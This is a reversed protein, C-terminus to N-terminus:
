CPSGGSSPLAGPSSRPAPAHPRGTLAGERLLLALLDILDFAPAADADPGAVPTAAAQLAQLHADGLTAGAALATCFAAAPPALPWLLVDDDRRLLLAAEPQDIALGALSVPEAPDPRQHASWVSVCAWRSRFVAAAPHWGPRWRLLRDPSTDPSTAPAPDSPAHAPTEPMADPAALRQALAELPLAPADAAHCCRQRLHELRALDGLWPLGALAPQEATFGDLWDGFHEEWEALVPHSPPHQQVFALALAAFCDAGLVERLVPFSEALADGLGALVNNRYVGFRQAPDSGNWSYLGPPAAAGPQRLRGTWLDAWPDAQLNVPLPLGAASHARLNTGADVQVAEEVSAEFCNPAANM